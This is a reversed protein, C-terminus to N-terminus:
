KVKPLESWGLLYNPSKHERRMAYYERDSGCAASKILTEGYKQNIHDVVSMLTDSKETDRSDFLGLQGEGDNIIGGLCVGAKQYEYGSQYLKELASLAYNIVHLSNSTSNPIKVDQYHFAQPVNRHPPTSIFVQISSCLSEQARLKECASTTYNALATRLKAITQTSKVFTRSCMIEKKNKAKSVLELLSEGQLEKMIILGRKTLVKQIQIENNYKSLEYASQIGLDNLKKSSAKGVGWIEGVSCKKLAYERHRDDLLSVVGQAKKSGKAMHNALKALTKSTGIGVCVPIGTRMEVSRKIEKGYEVLDLHEFGTLDLFAEDISYVELCPSFQALTIMVRDSINTYFSFNSSFVAVNHKKCLDRVEFFPQAMKVGLQKLEVSRSVFCGDNNSLVGVPKGILDPRFLIECSCFFANCDVLAYVKNLM